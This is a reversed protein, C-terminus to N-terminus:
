YNSSSSNSRFLISLDSTNRVELALQNGTLGMAEQVEIYLRQTEEFASMVADLDADSKRLQDLEKALGDM